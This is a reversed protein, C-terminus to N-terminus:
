LYAAITQNFEEITFDISLFEFNKIDTEHYNTRNKTYSTGVQRQWSQHTYNTSQDTVEENIENWTFNM